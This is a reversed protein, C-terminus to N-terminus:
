LLACSIIVNYCLHFSIRFYLQSSTDKVIDEPSEDNNINDWYTSLVGTWYRQGVVAFVWSHYIHWSVSINFHAIVCVQTLEVIISARTTYSHWWSNDAFFCCDLCTATCHLQMQSFKKWWQVATSRPCRASLPSAHGCFRLWATATLSRPLGICHHATPLRSWKCICIQM